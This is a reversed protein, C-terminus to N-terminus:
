CTTCNNQGSAVAVVLGVRPLYTFTTLLQLAPTSKRLKAADSYDESALWFLDRVM